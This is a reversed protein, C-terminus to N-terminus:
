VVFILEKFLLSTLGPVLLFPLFLALFSVTAAVLAQGVQATGKIVSEEVPADPSAAKIRSINELVVISNDLAVAIAVVLGSLSFINLSFGGLKM